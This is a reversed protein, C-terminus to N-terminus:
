LLPNNYEMEHEYESAMGFDQSLSTITIGM